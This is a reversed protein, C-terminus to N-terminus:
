VQSTSTCAIRSKRTRYFRGQQGGTVQQTANYTLPSTSALYRTCSPIMSFVTFNGGDQSYVLALRMRVESRMRMIVITSHSLHVLYAM